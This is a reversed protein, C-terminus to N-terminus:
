SQSNSYYGNYYGEKGYSDQKKTDIRNLVVGTLPLSHSKILNINKLVLKQPTVDAKVVYVLSDTLTALILVTESNRQCGQCWRKNDNRFYFM